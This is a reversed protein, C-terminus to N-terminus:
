PGVFIGEKIKADSLNPFKGILYKFCAGSTNLAKVFQKMIGLKIHLPPLQVKKADILPEKLINPDAAKLTKRLPWVKKVYHQARDRSDWLCIFCPYKTYGSQQGLLMCIIKLDGCIAM